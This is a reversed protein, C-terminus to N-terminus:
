CVLNTAQRDIIKLHKDCERGDEISSSIFLEGLLVSSTNSGHIDGAQRANHSQSSHLHRLPASVEHQLSVHYALNSSLRITLFAVRYPFVPTAVMYPFIRTTSYITISPYRHM